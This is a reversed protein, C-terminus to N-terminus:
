KPRSSFHSIYKGVYRGERIIEVKDGYSVFEGPLHFGYVFTLKTEPRGVEEGWYIRFKREKNRVASDEAFKFVSKIFRKKNEETLTSIIKNLGLEECTFDDNRKPHWCENFCAFEKGVAERFYKKNFYPNIYIHRYCYGHYNSDNRDTNKEKQTFNDRRFIKQKGFKKELSSDLFNASFVEKRIEKIKGKKNRKAITRKEELQYEAIKEAISIDGEYFAILFDGCDRLSFECKDININNACNPNQLSLIEKNLNDLWINLEKFDVISKSPMIPIYVAHLRKYFPNSSDPNFFCNRIKEKKGLLVIEPLESLRKIIRKDLSEENKM